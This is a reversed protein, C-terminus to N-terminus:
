LLVKELARVLQGSQFPKVIFEQAGCQIAEAIKETQGIASCIIIKARPELIKIRRLADIGDMEPMTIDMIVVDPKVETFKEIAEVGTAAQGVVSHGEGEVIQKINMRMFAADDVILVKAM